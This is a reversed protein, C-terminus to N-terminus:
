GGCGGGCGGGGGGADGSGGSDGWGGGGGGGNSGCGRRQSRPSGSRSRGMRQRPVAGPLHALCIDPGSTCPEAGCAQVYSRAGDIGLETDIRFLLPLGPTAEVERSLALTRRLHEGAHRTATAEDMTSEPDHHLFRSFAGRCFAAYDRTCTIHAHWLEDVVRSPMALPRGGALQVVRYWKRLGTLALSVESATLRPHQRLLEHTAATPVVAHTASRRKSGFLDIM